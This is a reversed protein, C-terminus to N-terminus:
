WFVNQVFRRGFRTKSEKVEQQSVFPKVHCLSKSVIPLLETTTENIKAITKVIM